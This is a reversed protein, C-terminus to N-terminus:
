CACMGQASKAQAGRLRLLTHSVLSPPFCVALSPETHDTGTTRFSLEGDSPDQLFFSPQTTTSQGSAITPAGAALLLALTALFTM